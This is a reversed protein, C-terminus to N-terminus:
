RQRQVSTIVKPEGSTFIRVGGRGQSWVMICPALGTGACNEAEPYPECASPSAQCFGAREEADPMPKFGAKIIASRVADYDAGKKVSRPLDNAFAPSAAFVALALIAAAAKASSAFMLFVGLATALRIDPSV